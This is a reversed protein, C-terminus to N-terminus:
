LYPSLIYYKYEGILLQDGENEKENGSQYYYGSFGLNFKFKEVSSNFVKKNLGNEQFDILCRVDEPLMRTNKAGVFIDDIDIQIFRKNENKYTGNSAFSIFDILLSASILLQNLDIGILLIRQSKSLEDKSKLITAGKYDPCNLVSEYINTDYNNFWVIKQDEDKKDLINEKDNFKTIQFFNNVYISFKNLNCKKIQSIPKFAIEIQNHIPNLTLYNSYRELSDARRNNSLFVIVGLNFHTAADLLVQKIEFYKDNLIVEVSDIIILSFFNYKFSSLKRPNILLTKDTFIKYSYRFSEFLIILENTISSNRSNTVILIRQIERTTNVISYPSPYNNVFKKSVKNNNSSSIKLNNYFIIFYFLVVINLLLITKLFNKNNVFKILIKLIIESYFM